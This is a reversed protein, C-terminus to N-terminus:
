HVATGAVNTDGHVVVMLTGHSYYLRYPNACQKATALSVEHVHLQKDRGSYTTLLSDYIKRSGPQLVDGTLVRGVLLTM